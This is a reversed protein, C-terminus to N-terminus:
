RRFLSPKLHVEDPKILDMKLLHWLKKFDKDNQELAVEYPSKNKLGKRKTSNIHNMLLTIDEDTYPDLSKGKPIVYRIYEHNKEVHAKQNSAMPDCYYMHTRYELDETLELEDVRKFEGGNDTLIIPFLNRFAELGLGAELFDYVRKVSSSYGDPMLFMLMVSNKRMFMTLLRKGHERVGKVTDMETVISEDHTKMQKLYDDHTRGKRYEQNLLGLLKDKKGKKRLRYRTKRRLDINRISFEGSDIYNYLSRLSVSIEDKHEAYIHVLPQGKYVLKKILKDLKEKEEGQIRIGRRSDSRRRDSSSQAHKASYIYKEKWCASKKLCTNCVFPTREWDTCKVTHYIDCKERCDTKLCRRCENDCTKSKNCVNNRKCTKAYRCDNGWPYNGKIMTRNNKVESAITSPHKRLKSAIKSFLEKREIGIEIVLRDSLTLQGKHAYYM